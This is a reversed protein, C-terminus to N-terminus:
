KKFSIAELLHKRELDDKGELDAITRAIKLIKDYVRASIKLNELASILFRKDEDKIDCYKKLEEQTMTSNTRIEKFRKYQIERAKIVRERIEASSEGKKSNVLEEENLRKIQVILDIRDLIPGSLKKTYREIEINSCKCNGEYLMGCPCPNSTGVLLFNTKFEVRYMARTISVFGDELPQRLAELVSHKFESMEDLVLIGNSALSIEGPIAKKGGGVMAPLTSSHHPMRVPRKSIIPNKESLEGAVSYIKTSEIIENESMEPLIGIMRKALMSKGSGPSGILLINHGGAASIEMARKAFYQGKVDSFDLTNEEEKEIKIKEFDLKVGNEIFNVVDAINKVVVIDIGDILSAENRNEYPLIVGKFGKEKALIVTNITGTVGKVEGDLSLEGIFLYDKVIERLDRLLKMELIIGIAIALDFQAGEKKIGAPSLNVVIKQPRVEYDSNKLAAKVRFKSELIATDGMGVISFMPLGRSIDVEVEVLYSELGLYSSTFIKNKM